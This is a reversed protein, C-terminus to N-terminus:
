SKIIVKEGLPFRDDFDFDCGVMMQHKCRMRNETTEIHISHYVHVALQRGRDTGAAESMASSIRSPFGSTMIM